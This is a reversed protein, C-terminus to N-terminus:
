LCEKHLQMPSLALVFDGMTLLTRPIPTLLPWFFYPITTHLATNYVGVVAATFDIFSM